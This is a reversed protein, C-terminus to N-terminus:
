PIIAVATKENNEENLELIVNDADVKVIVPKTRLEAFPCTLVVSKTFSEGPGLYTIEVRKIKNSEYVYVETYFKETVPEKGVNKVTFNVNVADVNIKGGPFVPSPISIRVGIAKVTTVELDLGTLNHNNPPTSSPTPAPSPTAVPNASFRESRENNDENSETINGEADVVVKITHSNCDSPWIYKKYTRTSDGAALGNRYFRNIFTGDIYRNWWFKGIADASGINKIRAYLKVEEGPNFEAPEIWIDEVILDPQPTPTPAFYNEFPVMLPYSDNDLNISYPIDGIGDDDVDSEKYDSWYNGTYNAYTNGNYTYNIKSSSNFINASKYSYVNDSNNIFNNLYIRNNSSYSLRIGYKDNLNAKNNTVSNRNSRSIYFGCNRNNSADSTSLTNNNSYSLYIGDYNNSATCNMLTNNDSHRFYIGYRNNAAKVNEVKSNRSYALLLGRSNNELILDRVAINTSNVIGVFGADGPIQQDQKDVWYYIPKGDVKNSTDIHHLYHALKSGYIAFNYRNEFMMNNTLTNNSSSSLYIGEDNNFSIINNTLTNNSSSSLYIGKDNNSPNNDNIISNGSAYLRIGYHNNKVNNNSINCHDLRYLYIGAKSSGTANKVTFGAINVYDATVEFVHDDSNKAQVITDVPNGSTSRITLQKNVNVNEIYTGADVTITHGDKTDSDDIAAQITEFDEGTNLNHVPRPALAPIFYNECPEMLPYDDNDSKTSYPTDGIGDNDADSGTYDDWYNGLFNEFRKGGYKYTIKETSNWINSCGYDNVNRYRNKIFNNFYIINNNSNGIVIGVHNNISANNNVVINNNSDYLYIGRGNNTAINNKLINNSSSHLYIGEDNWNATAINDALINNSSGSLKVGNNLNNSAINNILNNNSSKTLYIGYYNNSSANNNTLINNHSHDLYIGGEYSKTLKISNNNITNKNSYYLRIGAEDNSNATNNIITNNISHDLYIGYHEHSNAINNKIINDESRVYIGASDKGGSNTVKFGDLVCGGASMTITHGSGLGDVVPFDIGKLTLKKNVDVQEKYTGPYVIITDGPSAHYIAHQIKTYNADPYDQKDDDVYITKGVPQQNKGTYLGISPDGYLNFDMFNMWNDYNYINFSSIADYLAEGASKNDVLRKVYEYGIETNDPYGDPEWVGTTYISPSYLSARSASVTAIAGNKLLSYGLNTSLEPYGNLCSSQYVFSPHADDLAACDPTSFFDPTRMETYDPDYDPRHEPITNDNYDRCWYKRVVSENNGHGWWFVLGYRNKWEKIVNKKNIEANFYPATKPVPDIGYKYSEYLVYYSNFDAPILIDEIVHKPMQLGDTRHWGEGNENEYNSIAVPLLAKKRWSGYTIWYDMTKKLIEALTRYDDEYVPIRGVYVEPYFDVGGLGGDGYYEGFLGDGDLDWNGTLDAYFHDTPCEKHEPRTIRPWCMMMPVDGYSDTANTPDDPDPNGILLVYQIGLTQYNNILWNRINVARQQGEVTGYDDETVIKVRHGNSELYQVFDDELNPLDPDLLKLIDLGNIVSNTTVIVYNYAPTAAGKVSYWEKATDYNVITEEALEDVLNAGKSITSFVGLVPEFKIKVSIEENLILNKTVPNYQFPVFEIRVIKWDRMQGIHVIRVPSEPYWANVGYIDMNKRNEINKNGDWDVGNEEPTGIIAPPAPPIDFVGDLTINKVMIVELDVSHLDANPPLAIDYIKRPLEPNGPSASTYFGSMKIINFGDYESIQYENSTLAINVEEEGKYDETPSVDTFTFLMIICIGVLLMGKRM